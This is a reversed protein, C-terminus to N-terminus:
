RDPDAWVAAPPVRGPKLGPHDAPCQKGDPTQRWQAFARANQEENARRMQDALAHMMDSPDEGHGDRGM